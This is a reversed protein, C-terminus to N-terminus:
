CAVLALERCEIYRWLLLVENRRTESRVWVIRLNPIQM